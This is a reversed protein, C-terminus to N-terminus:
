GSKKSSPCPRRGRVRWGDCRYWRNSDVKSWRPTWHSGSKWPRAPLCACHLV